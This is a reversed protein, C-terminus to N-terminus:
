LPERLLNGLARELSKWDPGTVEELNRQYERAVALLRQAMLVGRRTLALYLIRKDSKDKYKEVYDLAVLRHVAKAIRRQELYVLGEVDAVLVDGRDALLALIRWEADTLRFEAWIRRAIGACLHEAAATLQHPLYQSLKFSPLNPLEPQRLPM